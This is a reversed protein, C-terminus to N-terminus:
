FRVSAVCLQLRFVSENMGRKRSKLSNALLVDQDLYM